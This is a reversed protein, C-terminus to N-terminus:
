LKEVPKGLKEALREYTQRAGENSPDMPVAIKAHHYAEELRIGKELAVVAFMYHFTPRHPFEGMAIVSEEMSEEHRGLKWLSKVVQYSLWHRLDTPQANKLARRSLDLCRQWDSEVMAKKASQYTLSAHKGGDILRQAKEHEGRQSYAHRLHGAMWNDVQVGGDIARQTCYIFLDAQPGETYATEEPILGWSKQTNLDKGLMYGYRAMAHPNDAHREIAKTILPLFQGTNANAVMQSWALSGEAEYNSPDLAIIKDVLPKLRELSNTFWPTMMRLHESLLMPCENGRVVAKNFHALAKERYQWETRRM